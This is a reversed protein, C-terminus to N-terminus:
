RDHMWIRLPGAAQFGASLAHDLAEGHEYGVVPMGPAFGALADLAAELLAGADAGSAWFFNSLGVVHDSRNAACVGIIDRDQRAAFIAISPNELLQPLFVRRDTPSGLSRWGKEWAHLDGVTRVRRWPSTRSRVPRAEAERWIWQAAFLERFGLTQLPLRAHCDNVSFPSRLMKALAEIVRSQAGADELTFAVANSYYPPVKGRCCFVGDVVDGTLKHTALVARYWDVNNFACLEAKSGVAETM